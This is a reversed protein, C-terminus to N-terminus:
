AKPLVCTGNSLMRPMRCHCRFRHITRRPALQFSSKAQAYNRLGEFSVTLLCVPFLLFACLAVAIKRTFAALLSAIALLLLTTLVGPFLVKAREYDASHIDFMSTLKGASLVEAALWAAATTSAVLLILVGGRVVRASSTGADDLARDFMRGVLIGLAVVSTLVYAPLKSQSISFFALVAIVWVILLRDARTWKTRSRWALLAAGPFLCSWAFCVGIVVSLYYYFPGTRAFSPTTLREVSEIM